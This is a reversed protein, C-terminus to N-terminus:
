DDWADADTVEDKLTDILDSAESKTLSDIEVDTYDSLDAGLKDLLTDIYEKQGETAYVVHKKRGNVTSNPLEMTVGEEEFEYPRCGYTYRIEDCEAKFLCYCNAKRHNCECYEKLQKLVASRM